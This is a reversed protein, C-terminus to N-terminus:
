LTWLNFRCANGRGVGGLDSSSLLLKFNSHIPSPSLGIVGGILLSRSGRVKYRGGVPIIAYEDDSESSWWLKVMTLGDFRSEDPKVAVGFTDLILPLPTLVSVVDDMSADILLVLEDRSASREPSSDM